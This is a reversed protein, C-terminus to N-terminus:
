AYHDLELLPLAMSFIKEEIWQNRQSCPNLPLEDKQVIGVDFKFINNQLDATIYKEIQDM